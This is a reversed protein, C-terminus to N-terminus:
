DNPTEAVWDDFVQEYHLNLELYFLSHICTFNRLGSREVGEANLNNYGLSIGGVLSDMFKRDSTSEQDATDLMGILEALSLPAPTSAPRLILTLNEPYEDVARYLIKDPGAPRARVSIVDSTTSQLEVRAIEVEGSLYDPLYEGGMFSPHIRSLGRRQEDSLTDQLLVPDLEELLGRRWYDEIMRRRNTGKVNRLIAQLFNGEEWYSPPRFSYDIGLYTKM